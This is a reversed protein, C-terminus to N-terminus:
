AKEVVIHEKGPALMEFIFMCFISYTLTQM